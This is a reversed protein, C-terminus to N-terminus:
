PVKNSDRNENLKVALEFGNMGPMQIDLIALALEQGNSKNLAEFGSVAKILNVPLKGLIVEMFTLNVKNDDVILLNPLSKIM